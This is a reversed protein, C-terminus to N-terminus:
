TMVWLPWPKPCLYYNLPTSRLFVIEVWTSIPSTNPRIAASTAATWHSHSCQRSSHGQSVSRSPPYRLAARQRISAQSSHRFTITHHPRRVAAQVSSTNGTPPHPRTRKYHLPRACAKVHQRHRMRGSQWLNERCLRADTSIAENRAIVSAATNWNGTHRAHARHRPIGQCM